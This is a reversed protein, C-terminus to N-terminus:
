REQTEGRGRGSSQRSPGRRGSGTAGSARARTAGTRRRRRTQSTKPLRSMGYTFLAGPQAGLHKAIEVAEEWHVGLTGYMIRRAKVVNAVTGRERAVRMIIQCMVSAPDGKLSAVEKLVHPVAYYPGRAFRPPRKRGPLGM